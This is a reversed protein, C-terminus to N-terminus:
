QAKIGAARIVTAWKAIEVKIQEGFEDPSNGVPDLGLAALREKTDPREVAKAIERHLVQIIEKPTGAPVLVGFWNEGLIDPYGAEAITPVEPLTQLRTKGIVALARLKGEQVQPVTAVPAVISIPTHGGITSGIAVGASNFPVHVLDLGLSLRFQEGVLHGPSGTGGSAFSYKGPNAKVLEVLDKFTSARLSPHVALVVPTTVALTVPDFDKTPDYPVKDFLAPNVVYSSSVLLITSGDPTAKVARGTGISGGAGGINEVYFQKGLNDSLKQAILRGFVDTPGGPAFPIIVRVSRTPYPEARAIQPMARLALAGAALRLFERRLLKMVNGGFLKLVEAPASGGRAKPTDEFECFMPLERIVNCWKCACVSPARSTEEQGSGLRLTPTL